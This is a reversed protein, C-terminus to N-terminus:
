QNTVCVCAVVEVQGGVDIAEGRCVHIGTVRLTEMANIFTDTHLVILLCHVKEVVENSIRVSRLQSGHMLM